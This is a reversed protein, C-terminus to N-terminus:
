GGKKHSQQWDSDTMKKDCPLCLGNKFLGESVGNDVYDFTELFSQVHLPKWLPRTEIDESDLANMIDLPRIHGLLEICSMWFNPDNWNNVPMVELGGLQGLHRRYYEFIYKKKEVRHSLVRLQGRGIGAAVNSMRYNFGLESHQYHRAPDRSQTAWFRVKAIREENILSWCGGVPRRLLRTEMLVLSATIV